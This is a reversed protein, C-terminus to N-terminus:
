AIELPLEAQRKRIQYRAFKKGNRIENVTEIDMGERRLEDIRAALRFCGYDDLAQLPTIGRGSRLHARIADTQTM